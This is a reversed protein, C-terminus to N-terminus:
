VVRVGTTVLRGAATADGEALSFAIAAKIQEADRHAMNTGEAIVYILVGLFPLIIVFVVWLAKSGGGIDHRRFIDILVRFLITFWIIWAFLIIMTWFVDMFPYDSAFITMAPLRQWATPSQM